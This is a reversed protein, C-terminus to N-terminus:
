ESKVRNEGPEGGVAKRNVWRFSFKKKEASRLLTVFNCRGSKGKGVGDKGGSGV